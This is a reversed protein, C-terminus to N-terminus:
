RARGVFAISEQIRPDDRQREAALQWSLEDPAITM